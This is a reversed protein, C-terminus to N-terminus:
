LLEVALSLACGYVEGITGRDLKLTPVQDVLHELEKAAESISAVLVIARTRAEEDVRADLERMANAPRPDDILEFM